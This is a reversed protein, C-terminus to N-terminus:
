VGLRLNMSVGRCKLPNCTNCLLGSLEKWKRWAASMRCRVAGDTGDDSTLINVLCCFDKVREIFEGDVGPDGDGDRVTGQRLDSLLLQTGM